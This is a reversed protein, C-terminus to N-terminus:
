SVSVAHHQAHSIIGLICLVEILDPTDRDTMSSPIHPIISFVGDPGDLSPTLVQSPAFRLVHEDVWPHTVLGYVAGMSFFGVWHVRPM